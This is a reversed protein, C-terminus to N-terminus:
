DAGSSSGFCTSFLEGSGSALPPSLRREYVMLDTHVIFEQLTHSHLTTHTYEGNLPPTYHRTQSTM